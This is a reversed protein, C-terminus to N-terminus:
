STRRQARLRQQLEGCSICGTAGPGPAASTRTRLRSAPAASTSGWRPKTSRKGGAWRPRSTAEHLPGCRHAPVPLPRRRADPQGPRHVPGARPGTRSARGSRRTSSSGRRSMCRTPTSMRAAAWARAACSWCTTSTSSGRSGTCSPPRSGCSGPLDWQTKPIDEDKWRRGSEMVGVRYGKEAARLAAVSRRVGLRHDARRLRLGGHAREERTTASAPNSDRGPTPLGPSASPEVSRLPRHHEGRSRAGCAGSGGASQVPPPTRQGLRNDPPGSRATTRPPSTRDRGPSCRCSRCCGPGTSRRGPCRPSSPNGTGAFSAWDTRMSAALAQQGANLVVPMNPLDFLYPLEAGHTAQGLGFGPAADDNFQYAYTPVGRAATWRDVQLAPCAFSADSVALGFVEDPRTPDASLPYVAAIAAARAPSM